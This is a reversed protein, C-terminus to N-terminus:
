LEQPLKALAAEMIKGADNGVIDLGEASICPKVRFGFTETVAKLNEYGFNHGALYGGATTVYYLDKAGCLGVPAGQEDYRFTLNLVSVQELWLKLWSSYSQEWYPSAVVVADAALLQKAYRFSPDSFDQAASRASRVYIDRGTLPLMAQGDLTLEEVRCDGFRRKLQSILARALRDTRSTARSVCANVFLITKM